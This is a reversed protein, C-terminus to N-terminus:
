RITDRPNNTRTTDTALRGLPVTLKSVAKGGASFEVISISRNSPLLLDFSGHPITKIFPKGGEDCSRVTTPDQISYSGLIKNNADNYQVMFDGGDRAYPMRGARVSAPGPALEFVGNNYNIKVAFHSSQSMDQFAPNFQGKEKEITTNADLVKQQDADNSGSKCSWMLFLLLAASILRFYNSHKM